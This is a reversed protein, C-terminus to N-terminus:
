EGGQLSEEHGEGVAVEHGKGRSVKHGTDGAVNHGAVTYFESGVLEQYGDERDGDSGRGEESCEEEVEGPKGSGLTDNHARSSRTLLQLGVVREEEDSFSSSSSNKRRVNKTPSSQPTRRNKRKGLLGVEKEEEDESSSHSPSPSSKEKKIRSKRPPHKRPSYRNSHMEEDELPLFNRGESAADVAALLCAFLCFVM